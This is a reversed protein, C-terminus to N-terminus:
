KKRFDDLVIIKDSKTNKKNDKTKSRTKSKAARREQGQLTAIDLELIKSDLKSSADRNLHKFHVSFEAFPDAFITIAHFPVYVEQVEGHFSLTVFFGRELVKLKQFQHQLVITIEERYLEKLKSSIKTEPDDTRFSIYLCNEEPINQNIAICELVKRVVALMAEDVLQSYNIPKNIKDM